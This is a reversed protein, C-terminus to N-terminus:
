SRLCEKRYLDFSAAAINVQEAFAFPRAAARCPDDLDLDIQDIIQNEPIRIPNIM